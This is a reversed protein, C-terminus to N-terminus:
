PAALGARYENGFGLGVSVVLITAIIVADTRDGVFFSVAATVVLLLLLASRLQRALVEWPRVRRVAIVNRGHVARRRTVEAASLGASSTRLRELVADCSLTAADATSLDSSGQNAAVTSSM